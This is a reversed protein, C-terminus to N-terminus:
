RLLLFLLVSPRLFKPVLRVVRPPDEPMSKAFGNSLLLLAEKASDQMNFYNNLLAKSDASLKTIKQQNRM